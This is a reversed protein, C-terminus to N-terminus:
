LLVGKRLWDLIEKREDEMAPINNLQIDEVIAFGTFSSDGLTGSRNCPYGFFDKYRDPLSQNPIHRIIYPKQISMYGGSAGISGGNRTTPNAGAVIAATSATLAETGSMGGIDGSLGSVNGVAKIGADIGTAAIDILGRVMQDFSVSGVPIQTLLNGQYQDIVVRGPVNLGKRPITTYIFAVCDGSLVDCHYIVHISQGMVEDVDLERYGIYPLFIGIKTYPSYDFCNKGYPEIYVSGCDIEVFQDSVMTLPQSSLYAGGIKPYWIANGPPTFPVIGAGVFIDMPNNFYLRIIDLLTEGFFHQAFVWMEAPSLHYVTIFGADVAGLDPLPPVDIDDVPRNHDGDGGGEENGPEEPDENPDDTEEPEFEVHFAANLTDYEVGIVGAGWGSNYDDCRTWKSYFAIGFYDENDYTFDGLAIYLSDILSYWFSGLEKTGSIYYNGGSIGFTPSFVTETYPSYPTPYERRAIKSISCAFSCMHLDSKDPDSTPEVTEGANITAYIALTQKYYQAGQPNKVELEALLFEHPQGDMHGTCYSHFLDDTMGYAGSWDTYNPDDDGMSGNAYACDNVTYSNNCIGVLETLSGAPCTRGGYMGGSVIYRPIWSM